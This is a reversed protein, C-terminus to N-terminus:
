GHDPHVVDSASSRKRLKRYWPQMFSPMVLRRRIVCRLTGAVDTVFDMRQLLGRENVYFIQESRCIEAIFEGVENQKVIIIAITMKINIAIAM